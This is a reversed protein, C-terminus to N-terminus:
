GVRRVSVCRVKRGAVFRLVRDLFAGAPEREGREWRALTGLDVGIELAAEKQTMGLATRHRRLRGTMTKARSAPSERMTQYASIHDEPIEKGCQMAVNRGGDVLQEGSGVLALRVGLIDQKHKLVTEVM